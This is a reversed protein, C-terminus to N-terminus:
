KGKRNLLISVGVLVLIVPWVYSWNFVIWRPVFQVGLLWLGLFILVLGLLLRLNQEGNTAKFDESLQHLNASIDNKSAADAERKNIKAKPAVVEESPIIIAAAIYALLAIGGTALTAVVFALRVLVVDVEFYDALGACVGTLKGESPKRYVRKAESM